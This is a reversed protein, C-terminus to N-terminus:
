KRFTRKIHHSKKFSINIKKFVGASSNFSKIIILNRNKYEFATKRKKNYIQSKRTKDTMQLKLLIWENQESYRL